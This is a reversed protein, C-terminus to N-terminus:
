DHGGGAGRGACRPSAAACTEEMVDDLRPAVSEWGFRRVEERLDISRALEPRDAWHALRDLLEQPTHYLHAAHLRGPLIEPYSLGDPLLPACGAYLAEVVAIGFFEHEATSVVVDSELLRRVYDERSEVYGFAKLRHAFRERAEDFVAPHARFQEGIVVLEFESGREELRGVVEFFAEPGKDFEWRHNWLITLPGSRPAASGRARDISALDVGVPIVTARERIREPVGEPLCDPMLRILDGAAQLFTDLHYRSNFIVRDAALCSTINTFGYQYDREDEDPLPYTLQNEHFYVARPVGGLDCLGVLAALDLYDSALIADVRETPLAEALKLAAGRMRWKWKRAPMTLLRIGHRSHARWGDIHAKHSGGYYPEIALINLVRERAGGRRQAQTARM